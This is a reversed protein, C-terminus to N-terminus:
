HKQPTISKEKANEIFDIAYEYLVSEEVKELLERRKKDNKIFDSLVFDFPIIINGDVYFKKM